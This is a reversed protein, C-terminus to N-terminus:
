VSTKELQQLSPPPENQPLVFTFATGGGNVREAKIHGKHAEIIARCIALGLGVGPSASEPNGRYFKDFVRDESGTPLGPGNDAIQVAIEDHHRKARIRIRSDAPTYKIANELLNALVREILIPDLKVLGLDPPIETTIEHQGLRHRLAALCAGVVEELLVWEPRLAVEGAELRAMDLVKGILESMREAEETIHFALERRTSDDIQEARALVSASGILTALPTRLDHSISALLTNRLREAASAMRASEAQGSLQLRELALALQSAFTDLQRRQEPDRLRTWSRLRIALVGVIRASGPLPVFLAEAAPLTDTTHGAPRGRDYVWQAAAIDQEPIYLKPAPMEQPYRIRGENDPLLVISLGGFVNNIHRMACRCVSESDRLDALERSMAYLEAVRRERFGAIRAQLRLGSALRSIVLAVILMALFTLLYQTDAVAFTLKPPVFFFDFAAVALVSAIVSPLQGYRVATLVVGLLYLMILVANDLRHHLPWALLTCGVMVMVASLVRRRTNRKKEELTVATDYSESRALLRQRARERQSPNAESGIVFVDINRAEKIIVDVASGFLLRRWSSTAPKGILLKTINRAHACGLIEASIFPGALTVTEAGLSEALELTRLLQERVEKPARQLAPTEVYAVLWECNFAAAMRKGARVLNEADATPGIAVMLRDAAAWVKEIANRDRYDRMQADVRDATRRLSLERLAILNGKRFFHQAAREAQEPLYVKGEELRQLLEDPPLDILEVEDAQEFVLDPVTEQVRIGTISGVIDNVSELHQVNVTTYVHIGANLLEDVDQWRKAHRSGEVNTHALEDMLILAPRRKLAADIDFERLKRGQYLLERAPLFELGETLAATEARKHTEVVGVVVDIGEARKARAAELMTYTKGVGPAMGFFIKLHGRHARAEDAKVRALLADPDPRQEDLNANM